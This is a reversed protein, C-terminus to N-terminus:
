NKGNIYRRFVFENEFDGIRRIATTGDLKILVNWFTDCCEIREEAFYHAVSEAYLETHNRFRQTTPIEVGTLYGNMYIEDLTYYDTVIYSVSGDPREKGFATAGGM